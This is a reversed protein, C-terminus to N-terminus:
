IGRPLASGRRRGDKSAPSFRHPRREIRITLRTIWATLKPDRTLRLAIRANGLATQSKGTKWLARALHAFVHAKREKPLGYCIAKRYNPIAKAARRQSDHLLGLAFYAEAKARKGKAATIDERLSEVNRRKM